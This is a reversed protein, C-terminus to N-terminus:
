YINKGKRRVRFNRASIKNRIQRREKSTIKKSNSTSNPVYDLLMDDDSNEEGSSNNVLSLKKKKYSNQPSETVFIPEKFKTKKIGTSKKSSDTLPTFTVFNDESPVISLKSRFESSSATSKFTMQNQHPQPQLSTGPTNINSETDQLLYRLIDNTTDMTNTPMSSGLSDVISKEHDLWDFNMSDM